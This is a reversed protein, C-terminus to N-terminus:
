IKEAVGRLFGAADKAGLEERLRAFPIMRANEMLGVMYEAARINMSHVIIPTSRNFTENLRKAVYIGTGNETLTSSSVSTLDYDLFILDYKITCLTNVASVPDKFISIRHPELKDTLFQARLDNDEVVLINLIDKTRVM